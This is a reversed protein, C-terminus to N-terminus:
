YNDQQEVWILQSTDYGVKEAKALYDRKINEPIQKERSLIWMYDLKGGIVLAFQYDPDIAIVNYGSYFPGFFSVKLAATHADERFKAKGVAEKWIKKYPEYGRNVVKITGNPNESYHATVNILNREFLLEMRAIEYWKGLYKQVDFSKIPHVGKPISPQSKLLLVSGAIAAASTILAATTSKKM